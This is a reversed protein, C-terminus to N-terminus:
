SIIRVTGWQSQQLTIRALLTPSEPLPEIMFGPLYTLPNRIHSLGVVIKQHSQLSSSIRSCGYIYKFPNYICCKGQIQRKSKPAIQRHVVKRKTVSIVVLYLSSIWNGFTEIFFTAISKKINGTFSITATFAIFFYTGAGKVTTITSSLSSLIATIIRTSRKTITGVMSNTTANTVKDILKSIVAVCVNTVSSLTKQINKNLISLNGATIASLTKTTCKSMTSNVFSFSAINLLKQTARSFLPSFISMFGTMKHEISKVVMASMTSMTAAFFMGVSKVEVVVASYASTVAAMIRVSLKIVLGSMTAMSGSIEKLTGKTIEATNTSTAATIKHSVAKRIVSTMSSMAATLYM